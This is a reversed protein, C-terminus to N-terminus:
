SKATARGQGLVLISMRENIYPGETKMPPAIRKPKKTVMPSKKREHPLAPPIAAKIPVRVDDGHIVCGPPSGPDVPPFVNMGVLDPSVSHFLPKGLLMHQALAGSMLARGRAFSARGDFVVAIV